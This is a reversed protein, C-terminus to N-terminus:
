NDSIGPISGSDEPITLSRGLRQVVLKYHMNVEVELLEACVCVCVCVDAIRSATLSSVCATTSKHKQM